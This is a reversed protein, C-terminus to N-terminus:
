SAPGAESLDFARNPRGGGHLASASVASPWPRADKPSRLRCRGASDNVLDGPGQGGDVNSPAGIPAAHEM